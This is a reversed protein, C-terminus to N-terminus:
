VEKSKFNEYPVAEENFFLNQRRAWTRGITIPTEPSFYFATTIVIEVSSDTMRLQAVAFTSRTHVLHLWDNM